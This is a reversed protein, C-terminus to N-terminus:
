VLNTFRPYENDTFSETAKQIEEKSSGGRKNLLEHYRPFRAIINDWNADFFRSLIFEKQEATLEDAPIMAYQWYLDIAGNKSYDELQKIM